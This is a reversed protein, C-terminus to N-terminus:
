FFYRRVRSILRLTLIRVKQYTIHAAVDSFMDESMHYSRLMLFRVKQCTIHAGVDSFTCESM